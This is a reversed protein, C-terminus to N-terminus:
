RGEGAVGDGRDLRAAAERAFRPEWFESVPVVRDVLGEEFAWEQYAVISEGDIMGDERVSIWCTRRVLEPDLGTRRALIEVNRETKGEHYRRVGELYATMFRVGTEPDEDLLTPGFIVVGMQFGPLIERNPKWPAARGGDAIITLWPESASAVDIAGDEFAKRKAVQPVDLIRIDEIGLGARRLVTGIMYFSPDTRETTFRLGRLGGPENLRGSALLEKSAMLAAYTCGEPDHRGKDAVIRVRGGRAILNMPSPAMHGALVDIKGQALVPFAEATMNLKVFEIDLGRGTFFGEEDAILIPAFSLFPAIVVKVPRGEALVPAAGALIAFLLLAPTRLRM